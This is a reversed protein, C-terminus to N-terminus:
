CLNEYLLEELKRFETIQPHCIGKSCVYVGDKKYERSIPLEQHYSVLTHHNLITSISESNINKTGISNIETLGNIMRLLLLGWNSYGSGYQEMGDYVNALMQDAIGQWKQNKYYHGLLYFNNAMVSNSAPIVNDHIDMKRAILTSTNDSFYCMKSEQHMFDREVKKALNQAINLWQLEASVQYLRIFAEIVFAYDELFGDICAQNNAYNHFLSDQNKLQSNEIWFATKKALNLFRNDGFASYAACLGSIIMANWSTLCKTDCGPQTRKNRHKLLKESAANRKKRFASLTWNQNKAFTKASETTLLIFKDDEWFGHKNISYYSSFWAFDEKLITKLEKKNWCYFKGEENDTDADLASYFANSTDKMERELWDVTQYVMEKYEIKKYYKYANSYLELLQANDYLMKEFHPVKWLMDVSYRSFGGGIQDHIGGALMKDLTLSVHSEVKKDKFFLAFEMLFLYNNPLPFKPAKTPGGDRNDFNPSWRVVIEHLKKTDWKELQQPLDILESQSIAENLKEAYEMVKPLENQYSHVLSKLVHLWQEKPFYTGGYIPRGDPLTFCNLPWGGKQTMLQLASMYVQDIDPREERDVKICIFNDNMYAALQEDEFCEKEMVHCWHCASYGISILVLKNESKAIDFIADSWANWNVPNKAHQLLYLSSEKALKNM